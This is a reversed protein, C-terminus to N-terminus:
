RCLNANQSVISQLGKLSFQYEVKNLTRHQLQVALQKGSGLQNLLQMYASQLDQFSSGRKANLEFRIKNSFEDVNDVVSLVGNLETNIQKGDVEVLVKLYKPTESIVANDFAILQVLPLPSQISCSVGFFVKKDVQKTFAEFAEASGQVDSYSTLHYDGVVEQKATVVSAFCLLGIFVYRLIM